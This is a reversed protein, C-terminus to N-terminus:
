LAVNVTSALIRFDQQSFSARTGSPYTFSVGDPVNLFIMTSLISLMSVVSACITGSNVELRSTGTM